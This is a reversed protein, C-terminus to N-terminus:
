EEDEGWYTYKFGIAKYHMGPAGTRSYIFEIYDTTTKSKETTYGNRKCFGKVTAKDVPTASNGVFDDVDTGGFTYDSMNISIKANINHASKSATGGVRIWAKDSDYDTTNSLCAYIEGFENLQEVDESNINHTAWFQEDTMSADEGQYIIIEYQGGIPAIPTYDIDFDTGENCATFALVAVFLGLFYSLKKM